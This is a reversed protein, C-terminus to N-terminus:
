LLFLISDWSREFYSQNWIWFVKYEIEHFRGGDCESHFTLASSHCWWSLLYSRLIWRRVFILLWVAIQIMASSGIVKAATSCGGCQEGFVMYHSINYELQGLWQSLIGKGLVWLWWTRAYKTGQVVLGLTM